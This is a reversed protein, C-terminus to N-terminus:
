LEGTEDTRLAKYGDGAGGSNTFGSETDLGCPCSLEVGDKNRNGIAGGIM